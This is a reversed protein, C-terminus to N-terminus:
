GFSLLDFVTDRKGLLQSMQESEWGGEVGVTGGSKVKSIVKDGKRLRIDLRDRGRLDKEEEKKKKKFTKM